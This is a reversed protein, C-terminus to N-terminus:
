GTSKLRRAQASKIALRQMHAKKANAARRAREQPSLVGDPDVEREFKADFGARLILGQRTGDQKAWRANSAAKASLRREAPTMM